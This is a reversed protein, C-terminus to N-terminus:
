VAKGEEIKSETHGTLTLNELGGNRIIHGILKPQRQNQTYTNKKHGNKKLSRQQKRAGDM